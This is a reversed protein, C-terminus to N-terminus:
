AQNWSVNGASLNEGKFWSPNKGMVAQYQTQTIPYKGLYFEELRVQHISAEVGFEHSGMMFEGVPIAIM